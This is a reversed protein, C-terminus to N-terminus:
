KPQWQARERIITGAAALAYLAATEARLIRSGLYIPRAGYGTLHRIEGPSLGGEPGIIIALEGVEEALNGHLNGAEGTEPKKEHLFFVPGRRNWKELVEMMKGPPGVLVPLSGGCQQLAESAVRNWRETRDILDSGTQFKVQSHDTLIPWIAYAGAEVAQRVTLDIKKGRTVAPMLTIRTQKEGTEGRDERFAEVTFTCSDRRSSTMELIFRGGSPSIAPIRDGPKHRRVHVLYHHDKGDLVLPEAADAPEHRLLFQKM